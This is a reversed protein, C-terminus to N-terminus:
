KLGELYQLVVENLLVAKTHERLQDPNTKPYQAKLSALTEELMKEEVKLNQKRAIEDLIIQGKIREEATPKLEQEIEKATKNRHLLYDEFTLNARKLDTELSYLMQKIEYEVLMAPLDIITEKNLAAMLKGRHSSAIAAPKEAELAARVKAKLDTVSKIQGPAGFGAAYADTLEPLKEKKDTEEATKKAQNESVQNESATKKETAARHRRLELLRNEVEEESVENSPREANIKKATAEYDSLNVEPWLSLTLTFGVPNDAALKTIELQPQGIVKLNHEKIIIPLADALAHRAATSLVALEGVQKIVLDAPLHGDRFGPLKLDRGLEKIAAGRKAALEAFPMEGELVALSGPRRDVETEKIFKM